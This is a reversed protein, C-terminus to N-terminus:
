FKAKSSEAKVMRPRITPLESTVAWFGAPLTLELGDQKRYRKHPVEGNKM